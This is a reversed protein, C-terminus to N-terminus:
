RVTRHCKHHYLVCHWPGSLASSVLYGVAADECALEDPDARAEHVTQHSRLFFAGATPTVVLAMKGSIGLGNRFKPVISHALYVVGSSIFATAMGAITGNRQAMQGVFAVDEAPLAQEAYRKPNLAEQATARPRETLEKGFTRGGEQSFYPISEGSTLM